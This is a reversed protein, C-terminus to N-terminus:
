GIVKDDSEVADKSQKTQVVDPEDAGAAEPANTVHETKDETPGKEKEEADDTPKSDEEVEAEAPKEAEVHFVDGGFDDNGGGFPDDQAQRKKKELLSARKSLVVGKDASDGELISNKKAGDTEEVDEDDADEDVALDIEEMKEMVGNIFQEAAKRLAHNPLLDDPSWVKWVLCHASSAM